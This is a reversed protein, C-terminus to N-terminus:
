TKNDIWEKHKIYAPMFRVVHAVMFKVKCKESLQILAKGEEVSLSLPKEVLVHLGNQMAERAIEFHLDTHVCVHVADIEERAICDKLSNYRPISLISKTDIEGVSFNGTQKILQAPVDDIDRTIIAKLNLKPNRQIHLAHTTGMFGFGIIAVNIM